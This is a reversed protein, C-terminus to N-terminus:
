IEKQRLVVILVIYGIVAVPLMMDAFYAGIMGTHELTEGYNASVVIFPLALVVLVKWLRPALIAPISSFSSGKKVGCRNRATEAGRRM